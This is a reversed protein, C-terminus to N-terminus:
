SSRYGAVGFNVGVSQETKVSLHCVEACHTVDMLYAFSISINYTSVVPKKYHCVEQKFGVTSKSVTVFTVAEFFTVKIKTM